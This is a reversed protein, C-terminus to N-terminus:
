KKSSGDDAQGSEGQHCGMCGSQANYIDKKSLVHNSPAAETSLPLFISILLSFTVARSIFGNM